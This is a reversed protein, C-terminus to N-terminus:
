VKRMHHKHLASKSIQTKETYNLMVVKFQTRRESKLIETQSDTDKRHFAM